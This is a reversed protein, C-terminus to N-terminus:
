SHDLEWVPFYYPFITDLLEGAEGDAKIPDAAPHTGFILKTLQRRTLGVPESSREPSVEVEGNRLRITVAEGDDTCVLCVTGELNASRARLHGTIKRMLSRLSNVRVMQFGIDAETDLVAMGPKRAELVDGFVTPHLPVVAHAPDNAGRLLLSQNFLAELADADGGGEVFGPKNTARTLVLYAVVRGVDWALLTVMKPLTLLREYEARTRGIRMLESDHIGIVADLHAPNHPNYLSVDHAGRRFLGHDHPHLLYGRAQPGVAEFGSNQYFPFTAERTWLVSVPWDNENMIRLCDRLCRTGHGRHRYDPHTGTPSIVGITMRDGNAIVERPAVPVHAVVRGDEKVIRMYELRSERFILPYDTELRQDSGPRFISNLLAMTEEFDEPRCARPGEM